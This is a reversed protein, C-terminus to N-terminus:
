KSNSWEILANYFDDRFKESAFRLWVSYKLETDSWSETCFKRLEVRTDPLDKLENFADMILNKDPFSDPTNEDLM